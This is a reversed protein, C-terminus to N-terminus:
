RQANAVIADRVYVSLGDRRKEYTAAFRPDDVYMKGLAAHMARSCPYFDRDIQLRAREAVDM